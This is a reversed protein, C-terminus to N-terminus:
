ASIGAQAEEREPFVYKLRRGQWRLIEEGRERLEAITTIGNLRMCETFQDRIIEGGKKAAAHGGAALAGAMAKGLGFYHAGLAIANFGHYGNMFDGDVIIRVDEPVKVRPLEHLLMDRTSIALPNQRRGHNSWWIVKAGIRIAREADEACHIGKVGFFDGRWEKALREIEDWNIASSELQAKINANPMPFRKGFLHHEKEALENLIRINMFELVLPDRLHHWLWNRNKMLMGMLLRLKFFALEAQKMMGKQDGIKAIADAARLRAHQNRPGATATDVTVVLGQYGCEHALQVTYQPTEEDGCAYLQFIKLGEAASAVIEAPTISLTSLTMFGGLDGIMKAFLAEGFPVLTGSSGIPCIGFPVKLNHGFFDSTLDPTVSHAGYTAHRLEEWPNSINQDTEPEAGWMFYGLVVPHNRKWALTHLDEISLCRAVKKAWAKESRGFSRSYTGWFDAVLEDMLQRSLM